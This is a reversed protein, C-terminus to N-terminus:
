SFSLRQRDNSTTAGGAGVIIAGSNGFWTLSGTNVNGNGGAEVVHIGNAVANVIAAYVSNNTQPSNTSNYWEIPVYGGSGTYDWQQELLIIDGANLNAIAISIAGAVNWTPASAPYYTGCLKLNAGYCIGTTGWGNNDAVLEGIVATGHDTGYGADVWSNLSAGVAKTIDAHSTNWSYELDCITVGTGTGGTQTWAWLANVGSPNNSSPNLYGQQSQYNPPTPPVMPKPVPMALDIGPLAQLDKCIKWVDHEKPIQLRYINNLNYIDEGTNREGNAEWGDITSEPADTIRYWKHWELKNLVQDTGQLAQSALDILNGNRIRVRSETAFMVEIWDEECLYSPSILKGPNENGNQPFVSLTFSFLISFYLFSHLFIKKM